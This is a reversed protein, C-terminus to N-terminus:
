STSFSVKMDFDFHMKETPTLYFFYIFISLFSEETTM